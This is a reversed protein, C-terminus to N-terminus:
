GAETPEPPEPAARAGPEIARLVEALAAPELNQRHDRLEVIWRDGASEALEIREVAGSQPALSITLSRVLRRVPSDHPPLLTLRLGAGRPRGLRADATLRRGEDPAFAGVLHDSLWTLTPTPASLDPGGATPTNTLIAARSGDILTTSGRPDEDHLLLRGPAVFVLTGPLVLPASEAFISSHRTTTLSAVLNRTNGAYARWLELRREIVRDAAAAPRAALETALGALGAALGALLPRRGIM